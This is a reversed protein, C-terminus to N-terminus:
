TNLLHDVYNYEKLWWKGDIYHITSVGGNSLRANQPFFDHNEVIQFLTHIVAGHAVLAVKQQPYAQHIKNLGALLRRRFAKFNEQEPYNKRPFVKTREEYTMGEAKGFSREKFEEIPIILVGLTENIIRATESARKLPSTYIAEIPMNQFFRGCDIAQAEGSKNLPIDTSGQLRGTKNWDTEGHRAIYITTM